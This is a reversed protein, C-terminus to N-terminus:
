TGERLIHAIKRVNDAFFGSTRLTFGAFDPFPVHLREYIDAEVWSEHRRLSTIIGVFIVGRDMQEALDSNEQRPVYGLKQGEPFDVRIAHDDYCNNGERVLYLVEGPKMMAM